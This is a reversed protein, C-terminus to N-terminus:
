KLILDHVIDSLILRIDEITLENELKGFKEIYPNLFAKVDTSPLNVLSLLDQLDNNELNM